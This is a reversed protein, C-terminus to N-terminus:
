TQDYLAKLVNEYQPLKKIMESRDNIITPNYDERKVPKDLELILNDGDKRARCRGWSSSNFTGILIKEIIWNEKKLKLISNSDIQKNNKLLCQCNVISMKLDKTISKIKFDIDSYCLSDNESFIMDSEIEKTIKTFNDEVIFKYKM